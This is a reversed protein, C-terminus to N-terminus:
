ETVLKSSYPAVIREAGSGVVAYFLAWFKIVFKLVLDTLFSEFGIISESPLLAVNSDQRTVVFVCIPGSPSM